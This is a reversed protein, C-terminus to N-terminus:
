PSTHSMNRDPVESQSASFVVTPRYTSETYEPEEDSSVFLPSGPPTDIPAEPVAHKAKNRHRALSRPSDFSM